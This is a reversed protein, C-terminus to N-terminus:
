LVEKMFGIGTHFILLDCGTSGEGGLANELCEAMARRSDVVSTSASFFHLM